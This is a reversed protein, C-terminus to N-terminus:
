SSAVCLDSNIVRSLEQRFDTQAICRMGWENELSGLFLVATQLKSELERFCM